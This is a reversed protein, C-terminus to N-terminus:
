LPALAANRLSRDAGANRGLKTLSTLHLLVSVPVLFTPILVLPFISILTNAPEYTFLPSPATIFGASVAIALDVLGFINWAAVTGANEEPRRAYAWAVVPALLGVLIDGLGAPWAFLGPLRDEAYLILFIVGLARYIQAGVLFSQPVAAVVRKVFTSRWLLWAGILIPIFIGYQITPITASGAEYAGAFALAVAAVFWAILVGGVVALAHARDPQSWGARRLASALGVLIMVIIGVSGILVYYPLYFPVNM